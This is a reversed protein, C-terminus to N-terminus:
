TGERLGAESVALRPIAFYRLSAHLVAVGAMISKARALSLDFLSQLQAPSKGLGAEMVDELSGPTIEPVLKLYPLSRVIQVMKAMARINGSSGAAREAPPPIKNE